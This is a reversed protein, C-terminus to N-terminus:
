SDNDSYRLQWTLGRDDSYYIGTTGNDDLAAAWLVSDTALLAQPQGPLSGAPQWSKGGDTSSQVVGTPEVGWLTGGPAWSVVMVAPLTPDSWTRGGDSSGQVGEPTTAVIRAADNPDVAFSFLDLTSRIDWRRRDASVMFRGSTADWGYVQDHATALGHFDVEGSLSVPEWSGAADTSEILGLLGPQGERLGAVDPHGSGLFGKPGTVTFGMTDQQSDGVREPAGSEPLRYMGYHTAVYLQGDAPDIGLGHVHSMGTDAAPQASPSGGDRTVLLGVGAALILGAIGLLWRVRTPPTSPRSRGTSPRHATTRSM